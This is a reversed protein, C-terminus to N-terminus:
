ENEEFLFTQLDKKTVEKRRIKQTTDYLKAIIRAYLYIKKYEQYNSYLFNSERKYTIAKIYLKEYLEMPLFRKENFEFPVNIFKSNDLLRRECGTFFHLNNRIRKENQDNDQATIYINIDDKSSQLFFYTAIRNNIAERCDLWLWLEDFGMSINKSQFFDKLSPNSEGLFFLTDRNIKIHPFNLDYNTVITRGRCYDLFLRYTMYLTKGSNMLGCISHITM